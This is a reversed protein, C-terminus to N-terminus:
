ANDGRITSLLTETVQETTADGGLDPTLVAGDRSLREIASMVGRASDHEGLHDLLMSATWFAGIPNAIGRGAIDPASGHIPEFMSPAAGTPDLNASAAIGLSGTLAADGEVVAEHEYYAVGGTSLMVRKLTLEQAGADWALATELALALAFVALRPLISKM